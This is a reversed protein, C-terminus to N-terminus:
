EHGNIFDIFAFSILAASQFGIWVSGKDFVRAFLVFVCQYSFVFRLIYEAGLWISYIIRPVYSVHVVEVFYYQASGLVFSLIYMNLRLVVFLVYEVSIWITLQYNLCVFVNNVFNPLQVLRHILYKNTFPLYNFISSLFLDIFSFCDILQICSRFIKRNLLFPPFVWTYYCCCFIFNM